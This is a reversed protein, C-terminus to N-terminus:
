GPWVLDRVGVFDARSRDGLDRARFRLVDIGAAPEQSETALASLGAAHAAGAAQGPGGKGDVWGVVRLGRSRAAAVLPALARQQGEDAASGEAWTVVLCNVPTGELLALARPDCWAGLADAERATFGELRRARELELPGCPWRMPVWGTVDV